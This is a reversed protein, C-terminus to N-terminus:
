NTVPVDRHLQYAAELRLWTQADIGFVRELANATDATMPCKGVLLDKVVALPQGLREALEDDSWANEDMEERIYDGPPFVEAPIRNRSM